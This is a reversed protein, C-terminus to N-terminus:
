TCMLDFRLFIRMFTYTIKAHHILVHRGYYSLLQQLLPFSHCRDNKHVIVAAYHKLRNQVLLIVDIRLVQACLFMM